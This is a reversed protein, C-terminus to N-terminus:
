KTQVPLIKCTCTGQCRPCDCELHTAASCRFRSFFKRCEPCQPTESKLKAPFLDTIRIARNFVEPNQPDSLLGEVTIKGVGDGSVAYHSGIEPHQGVWKQAFKRAGALTKFTAVKRFRDISSYCVRIIM